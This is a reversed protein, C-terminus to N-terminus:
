SPLDQLLQIYFYFHPETTRFFSSTSVVPYAIFMSQTTISILKAFNNYNMQSCM